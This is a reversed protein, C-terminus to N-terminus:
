MTFTVAAPIDALVDTTIRLYPRCREDRNVSGTLLIVQHQIGVPNREVRVIDSLFTVM